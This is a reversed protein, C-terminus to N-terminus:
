VNEKLMQLIKTKINIIKILQSNIKTYSALYM